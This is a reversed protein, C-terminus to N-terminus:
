RAMRYPPLCWVVLSPNHRERRGRPFRKASWIIHLQTRSCSPSVLSCRVRTSLCCARELGARDAVGLGHFKEDDTALHRTKHSHKTMGGDRQRNAGIVFFKMAQTHGVSSAQLSRTTQRGSHPTRQDAWRATACLQM